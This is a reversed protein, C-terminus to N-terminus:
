KNQQARYFALLRMKMYYVYIKKHPPTGLKPSAILNFFGPTEFTL